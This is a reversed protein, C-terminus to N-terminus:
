PTPDEVLVNGDPLDRIKVFPSPQPAVRGAADVWGPRWRLYGEAFQAPTVIRVRRQEM